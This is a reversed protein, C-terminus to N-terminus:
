PKGEAAPAKKEKKTEARKAECASPTHAQESFGTRYNM